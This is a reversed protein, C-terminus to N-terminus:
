SSAVLRQFRPNTRLPDFNPDIKLWGSSLYYPIKLLPELRDLAKEPEGVLIYIRILQHQVYTGSFADKTIPALAVGREGERLADAKRGLYALALGLLVHRQADDPADRLQEEFGLRASDAYARTHAPDGRLAYAQALVIGWNGRDNDFAAPALGLLLRQQADDLMWVLDYFTAVYAVLAAPDVERPVARLVTRGAPLDGRALAVMARIEIVGVNTPALAVARDCAAQADPYRRLWLLTRGLRSATPVSRPDLTQARTFHALAAEWRGLVQEVRATAALLDANDPAVRLGAAYAALAQAPDSRVLGQYEGLALQGEPREPALAVAREAAEKARAAGTSTPTGNSYYLAHARSLQTWALAFTSDLAVAQEYFDIGRRLSAPDAVGMGQTAEEGKLFADYAALNATPKVALAQRQEAGLAVDLEGAVRAAIDAQVQFVNTLSGDFAEQWKTTPAGDAAVEVLEPSVRVQSPGGAQKEWRVKGIVLYDAGLERGIQALSKKSKKYEASSLSAIVKLGPLGALKGRVEDTMGDAFYEDEPAGMNEFPLVALVKGEGSRGAHTSRWAFLVGLGLLFGLALLSFGLPISRRRRNSPVLGAALQKRRTRKWLGAVPARSPESTVAYLRWEGPLGKLEHAGREAFDLQSGTLTEHVAETVLIEGAAAEATVRAVVHLALGGVHRGDGELRGIHVGTRIELGLERVAARIAAACGIAQEPEEFSALFSDGATNLERGGFRRLESRVLEDHRRRLQQWAQDRLEAARETSSV